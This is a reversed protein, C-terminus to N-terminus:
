ENAYISHAAQALSSRVARSKTSADAWALINLDGIINTLMNTERDEGFM